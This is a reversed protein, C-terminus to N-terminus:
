KKWFKLINAPRTNKSEQMAKNLAASAAELTKSRNSIIISQKKGWPLGSGQVYAKFTALEVKDM